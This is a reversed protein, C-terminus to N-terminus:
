LGYLAKHIILVHGEQSEFEHGAVIYIKEDTYAELYENGINTCWFELLNLEANFIIM